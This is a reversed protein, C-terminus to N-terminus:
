EGMFRHHNQLYEGGGVCMRVGSYNQGSMSFKMRKMFELGTSQSNNKRCYYSVMPLPIHDGLDWIRLHASASYNKIKARVDRCSERM